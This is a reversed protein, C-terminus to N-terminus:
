PTFRFWRKVGAARRAFFHTSSPRMPCRNNTLTLMHILFGRSVEGHNWMLARWGCVTSMMRYKAPSMSATWQKAVLAGPRFIQDVACNLM